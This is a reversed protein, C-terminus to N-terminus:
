YSFKSGNYLIVKRMIIVKKDIRSSDSPPVGATLLQKNLYMYM